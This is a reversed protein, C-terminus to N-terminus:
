RWDGVAIFAGWHVPHTALGAARRARLETLSAERVAEASDLGRRWRNEYLARMWRAATRDRVRWLSMITTRAGAILFARRFGMMGEGSRYEGLGTECASLVAWQVGTLDMSAIEEATLIGDDQDPLAQARLNAGALALGSFRLPNPIARSTPAPVASPVMGGIGRADEIPEQCHDGIFFGHTALHVVRRGAARARFETETARVGALVEIPDADPEPAPPLQRWLDAIAELEGGSAPLANFHIQGFTVCDTRPGRYGNVAIPGDVAPSNPSAASSDFAPAGIALLGRGPQASEIGLALDREATLYHILPGRELVYASSGIPLTALNVLGLSGDPVVFVRTARKLHAVVPDWVAARLRAAVQRYRREAPREGHHQVAGWELERRWDAVLSDIHRVDGLPVVEPNGDGALVFALYSPTSIWRPERWEQHHYRAYAVLAAGRPLLVAVSDLGLRDRARADRFRASRGALAREARDRDMRARELRKRFEEPGDPGQGRVELKSLQRSTSDFRAALTAVEPDGSVAWTRHRAATEDLVLARSRALADWATRRADVDTSLSGAALSLLMNLGTTRQGAIWSGLLTLAQSEPMFRANYGLHDRRMEEARSAIWLAEQSRGAAVLAEGLLRLSMGTQTSAPGPASKAFTAASRELSRIADAHRGSAHYMWGLQYFGWGVDWCDPGRAGILVALSSDCLQIAGLTDGDAWHHESLFGLARGGLPHHAGYARLYIGAAGERLERYRKPDRVTQALLDMTRGMEMTDGPRTRTRIALLRDLLSRAEDVRGADIYAGGLHFLALAALWHDAPLARDAIELAHELMPIGTAEDGMWGRLLGLDQYPKCMEVHDPGLLARIASFSEEFYPRSRAEQSRWVYNVGINNWVKATRLNRSGLARECIAHARVMLQHARDYRAIGRLMESYNALPEILLPHEPGFARETREVVSAFRTTDFDGAKEALLALALDSEIRGPDDPPLTREVIAASTKLVSDAGTLDDLQLREMGIRRLAALVEPHAPGLARERLQLSRQYVEIAGRNDWRAGRLRGLTFLSSALELSDRGPERRRIALSREIADLARPEWYRGGLVMAEVLLDLVDAIRSSDAAATLPLGVFGVAVSEAAPYQGADILQRISARARTIQYARPGRSSTAGGDNMTHAPPQTSACGIAGLWILVSSWIALKPQLGRCLTM